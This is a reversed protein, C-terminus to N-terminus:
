EEEEYEEVPIFPEDMAILEMNADEMKKSIESDSSDNIVVREKTAAISPGGKAIVGESFQCWVPKVATGVTIISPKM